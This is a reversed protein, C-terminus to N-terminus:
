EVVVGPMACCSTRRYPAVIVPKYTELLFFFGRRVATAVDDEEALLTVGDSLELCDHPAINVYHQRVWRRVRTVVKSLRLAFQEDSYPPEKAAAVGRPRLHPPLVLAAGNQM